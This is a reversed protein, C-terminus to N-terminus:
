PHVVFTTIAKDLAAALRARFSPSAQLAADGANRMNGCEILAIPVHSLNLGGLDDRPVIGDTGTYNSISMVGAGAVADVVDRGFALSDTIIGDNYGPDPEPVDVSFGHGWAPAGDAHISLAADSEAGNAIAARQNICPGVGDNSTRTMVVWAGQRRLDAALDVAVDFNFESEPFGVDTATGTTNCAKLFGGANVLHTIYNPDEWNRGNHGPDLTIVRGALSYGSAEPVAAVVEPADGYSVIRGTALLVWLGRGSSTPACSVAPPGTLSSVSHLGPAHGVPVVRRDAFLLWYGRGPRSAEIAVLRGDAPSRRVARFRGADGYPTVTGDATAVWYGRGDPTAAMGIVPDGLSATRLSGHNVATGYASVAGARTVVWYGTGAQDATIEVAPQMAEHAFTSGRPEAGGFGHVQGDAELIWYGKAAAAMSVTPSSLPGRRADGVSHEGVFSRVSGDASLAWFGSEERDSAVAVPTSADVAKSAAAQASAHAARAPAVTVALM